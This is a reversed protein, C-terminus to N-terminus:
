PLAVYKGVAAELDDLTPRGPTGCAGQLAAAVEAAASNWNFEELKFGALQALVGIRETWDALRGERTAEVIDRQIKLIRQVRAEDFAM